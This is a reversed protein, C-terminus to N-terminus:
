TMCLFDKSHVPLHIDCERPYDIATDYSVEFLVLSNPKEYGLLLGNNGKKGRLMFMAHSRKGERSLRSKVRWTWCMGFVWTGSM